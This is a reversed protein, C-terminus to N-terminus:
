AAEKAVGAQGKRPQSLEFVMQWAWWRLGPIRMLLSDITECVSLVPGFWRSKRLPVAAITCLHFFRIDVSKFHSTAKGIDQRGLIHDVEWATRLKPTRKRYLRFVPNHAIAELCLIKGKPKLVRALEPYAQELDLHHLVGSCVIVDFTDDAFSLNEADMVQMQSRDAFGNDALRREATRVSEESIDIGHVFAGAQAMQVSTEGRGCCYDLAIRGQCHSKLWTTAYGRSKRAISYWKTNSYKAEFEEARMSRRDVERQDAYDAELQKRDCEALQNSLTQSMIPPDEFNQM